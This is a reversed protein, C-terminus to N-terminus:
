WIEGNKMVMACGKSGLVMIASTNGNIWGGEICVFFIRKYPSGPICKAKLIEYFKNHDMLSLGKLEPYDISKM